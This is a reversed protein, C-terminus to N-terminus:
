TVEVTGDANKALFEERFDETCYACLEAEIEDTRSKARVTNVAIKRCGNPNQCVKM